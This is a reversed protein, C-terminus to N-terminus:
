KLAQDSACRLHAIPCQAGPETTVEHRRRYFLLYAAKSVIDSDPVESTM